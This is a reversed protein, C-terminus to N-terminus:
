REERPPDPKVFPQWHTPREPFGRGIIGWWRGYGNHTAVRVENRDADYMWVTEYATPMKDEVKIWKDM